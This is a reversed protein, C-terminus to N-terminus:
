STSGRAPRSWTTARGPTSGTTGAGTHIEDHGADGRVTNLGAGAHITDSGTGGDIQDNGNGTTITDNGAGGEVINDGNGLTIADDGDSGFVTQPLDVIAANITDDDTDGRIDVAGAIPVSLVDITSGLGPDANGFDGRISLLATAEAQVTGAITVNDGAQLTIWGAPAEVKKGAGIMLDQGGGAADLVTLRVNGTAASVQNVTLDGAIETLAIHVAATANLWGAAGSATDIELDNTLSGISGAQATLQIHRGIVDAEPPSAEPLPMPM